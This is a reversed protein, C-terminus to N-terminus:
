KTYMLLLKMIKEKQGLAWVTFLFIVTIQFWLQCHSHLSFLHAAPYGCLFSHNYNHLRHLNVMFSYMQTKFESESEIENQFNQKLEDVYLEIQSSDGSAGIGVQNNIKYLKKITTKIKSATGQSDSALIIGDKSKIALVTTMSEPIPCM